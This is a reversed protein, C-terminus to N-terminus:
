SARHIRGSTDTGLHPLLQAFAAGPAGACPGEAQQSHLRERRQAARGGGRRRLAHVHLRRHLLPALVPPKLAARHLVAACVPQGGARGWAIGLRLGKGDGVASRQGGGGAGPGGGDVERRIGARVRGAGSLLRRGRRRAPRAVSAGGGPQGAVRMPRGPWALATLRAGARGTGCGRRFRGALPGRRGHPLALLLLPRVAHAPTEPASAAAPAGEPGPGHPPVAPPAPMMSAAM